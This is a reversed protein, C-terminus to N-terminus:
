KLLNFHSISAFRWNRGDRRLFWNKWFVLLKWTLDSCTYKSRRTHLWREYALAVVKLALRKFNEITKLREHAIMIKAPLLASIPYYLHKLMVHIANRSLLLSPFKQM